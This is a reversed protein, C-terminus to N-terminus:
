NKNDVFTVAIKTDILDEMLGVKAQILRYQAKIVLIYLKLDTMQHCKKSHKTSTTLPPYDM